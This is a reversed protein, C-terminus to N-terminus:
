ESWYAPQNTRYRYLLLYVMWDFPVWLFSVKDSIEGFDVSSFRQPNFVRCLNLLTVLLQRNLQRDELTARGEDLSDWHLLIDRRIQGYVTSVTNLVHTILNALVQLSDLMENYPNLLREIMRVLQENERDEEDQHDNSKAM